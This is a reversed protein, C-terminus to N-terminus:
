VGVVVLSWDVVLDHDSTGDVVGIGVVSGAEVVEAVTLVELVVAVHVVAVDVAGVDAVAVTTVDVTVHDSVVGFEGESVVPVVPREVEAAVSGGDVVEPVSGGVDTPCVVAKCGDVDVAAAGSDVVTLTTVAPGCM